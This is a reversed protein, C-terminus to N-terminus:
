LLMIKISNHLICSFIYFLYQKPVLLLERKIKVGDDIKFLSIIKCGVISACLIVGGRWQCRSLRTPHCNKHFNVEIDVILEIM